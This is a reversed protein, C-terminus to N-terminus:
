ESPNGNKSARVVALLHVFNSYPTYALGNNARTSVRIHTHLFAMIPDATAM